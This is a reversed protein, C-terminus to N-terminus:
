SVLVVFALVTHLRGGKLKKLRQWLTADEDPETVDEINLETAQHRGLGLVLRGLSELSPRAADVFLCAALLVLPTAPLTALRANGGRLVMGGGVLVGGLALAGGGVVGRLRRLSAASGAGGGGAGVFAGPATPTAGGF